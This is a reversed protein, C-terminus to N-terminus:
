ARLKGTIAVWDEKRGIETIEFGMEEMKFIVLDQNEQMIGSCVFTGGIKLVQLICSLLEVVIDTLINAAVFDYRNKIGEVLNGCIVSFKQAEIGNLKLNKSAIDAAVEDQDVGCVIGAGLKAAAIMLIGSGTGVDLFADGKNLYAEIMEICLATTPHTGTGFAMGPDLELVIEGPASRYNRWTPKVVIKRGIKQPEFHAKWSEAWDEEDL